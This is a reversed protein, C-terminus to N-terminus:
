NMLFFNQHDIIESDSFSIIENIDNPSQLM